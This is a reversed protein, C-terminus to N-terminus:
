EVMMSVLIPIKFLQTLKHTHGGFQVSYILKCVSLFFAYSSSHCVFKIFPKKMLLGMKSDPNLMYMSGYMAFMAGLKGVEIMQRVMSKRRFGPLGDYWIAALLQQVNPHAVFQLLCLVFNVPNTLCTTHRVSM